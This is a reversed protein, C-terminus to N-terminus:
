QSSSRIITHYNTYFGYDGYMWLVNIGGGRNLPVYPRVNKASSSSTLAESAFSAGNNATTYKYLEWQSSVERSLYVTDVDSHDLHVGGSYYDEVESADITGGAAALETSSWSSGNWRAYNYRHDTTSPYTGYVIVPHGSGDIAIDWIWGRTITGDYVLTLDAPALPLDGSDGILTGDTKYYSGGEYYFHYISSTALHAPHGSSVAFDIRSTGNQVAKFYPHNAGNSYLVTRASWTAGGDESKSFSWLFDGGVGDRDRFFLYIPDNAEGTLQIPSPYTYQVGGLSSDLDVEAELASVDEANTSVVQYLSSGNHASYWLMIKSDSDRVLISPNAHDDVELAVRPSYYRVSLPNNDPIQGIFISGKFSVFGLYTNGNFRVARPDGFWSWAGDPSLTPDAAARVTASLTAHGSGSNYLEDLLDSSLIADYLGWQDLRGHMFRQISGGGRAGWRFPEGTNSNVGASHAATDATGRNVRIGIQNNVADHWAEIFYWTTASPSGLNNASVVTTTGSGDVYFRFRDAGDDYDLAYELGASGWKSLIQRDGSKNTLYVWGAWMFDTDGPSLIYEPGAHTLYASTASDFGTYNGEIAGSSASSVDVTESAPAYGKTDLRTLNGEDFSWYAVMNDLLVTPEGDGGGGATIRNDIRMLGLSIGVPM